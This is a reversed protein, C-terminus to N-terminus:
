NRKTVRVNVDCNQKVTATTSRPTCMYTNSLRFKSSLDNEHKGLARKHKPIRSNTAINQSLGLARKVRGQWHVNVLIFQL